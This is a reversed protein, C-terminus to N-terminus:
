AAARRRLDRIVRRVKQAERRWAMHSCTVIWAPDIQYSGPTRRPVLDADTIPLGAVVRGSLTPRAHTCNVGHGFREILGASDLSQLARWTRMVMRHSRGCCNARVRVWKDRNSEVCIMALLRIATHTMTKFRSKEFLFGLNRPGTHPEKSISGESFRLNERATRELFSM